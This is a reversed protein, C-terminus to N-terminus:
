RAPRGLVTTVDIQKGGNAAVTPWLADADELHGKVNENWLRVAKPNHQLVLRGDVISFTNVDIAATRGQSVAYACFAGFQPEYRAPEKEFADRHSASAFWYTAGRYSAKFEPVGKVPRGDTFFAVADYGDLIIGNRDLNLLAPAEAHSPAAIVVAALASALGIASLKRIM